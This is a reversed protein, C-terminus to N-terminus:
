GSRARASEIKTLDTLLEHTDQYRDAPNKCLCKGIVQELSAPTGPILKVLPVPQDKMIRNATEIATGSRFPHRGSWLEYLVVGFSFVDTRTDPTQESLVEPAMYAPTGGIVRTLTCDGTVNEDDAQSVYKAVGFDLIKMDGEPTILINEPKIDCHVIGKQHAIVLAEACQRAINLFEEMHVARVAAIRARLTQGQVYEM